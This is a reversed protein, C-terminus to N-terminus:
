DEESDSWGFAAGTLTSLEVPSAKKEVVKPVVKPISAMKAREKELAEIARQELTYTVIDIKSSKAFSVLIKHHDGTEQIIKLVPTCDGEIKELEWRTKKKSFYIFTTYNKRHPEAKMWDSKQKGGDYGGRSQKDKCYRMAGLHQRKNNAANNLSYTLTHKVTPSLEGWLTSANDDGM